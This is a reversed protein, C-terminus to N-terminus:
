CEINLVPMHLGTAYLFESYLQGLIIQLIRKKAIITLSTLVVHSLVAYNQTHITIM